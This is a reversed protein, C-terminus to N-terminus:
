VLFFMRPTTTKRSFKQLQGGRIFLRGPALLTGEFDQLSRQISLITNSNEQLSPFLPHHTLPSPHPSLPHPTLLILSSPPSLLSSLPHPTLLTLPPTFPSSHPTYSHPSHPTLPSSLSLSLSPPDRHVLSSYTFVYFHATKTNVIILDDSVLEKIRDNSHVAAESIIGLAETPLLLKRSFVNRSHM